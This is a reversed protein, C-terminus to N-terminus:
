GSFAMGIVVIGGDAVGFARDVALRFYGEHSRERVEGALGGLTERLAAIGKGTSSSLPSVLSRM